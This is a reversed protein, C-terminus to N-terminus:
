GRVNGNKSILGHRLGIERAHRCQNATLQTNGTQTSEHMLNEESSMHEGSDTLVHFLEHTLAIGAHETDAVLWVTNRLWPRTASNAHGFAEGDFGIEMKTDRILFIIPTPLDIHDILTKATSVHFDRLYPPVRLTHLTARVLKIDCQALIDAASQVMSTIKNNEWGSEALVALNLDLTMGGSHPSLDILTASQQHIIQVTDALPDPIYGVRVYERGRADLARGFIATKLEATSLAPNKSLLRGALAAIRSVAYSSGSVQRVSGDFDTATQREAPVLLDVASPGWNVREAPHGYDDASTVTILNELDLVAPYVPQHDINRGNNGASAIFLIEPHAMAAQTFTQWEASKNSGLPIAVIRVGYKAAHAILDRMRGMSPRPYRYPVIRALPAEKMLLSATRTGHRQILFASRATHADFPRDDMDWYDYGILRGNEDRALATNIDPILYNVGSDVLAIRMGANRVGPPVPPNVPESTGSPRLSKDLHVIEIAYNNEDYRLARALRLSCTRDLAFFFEPRGQADTLEAQVGRLQKGPAIRELTMHRGASLNLRWKQGIVREGVKLPEGVVTVVNPLLGLDRAVNEAPMRCVTATIHEGMHEPLPAAAAAALSSATLAALM